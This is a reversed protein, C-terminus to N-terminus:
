VARKKGKSKEGQQKQASGCPKGDKKKKKKDANDAHEFYAELDKFQYVNKQFGWANMDTPIDKDNKLWLHLAPYDEVRSFNPAYNKFFSSKSIFVEILNESTPKKPLPWKGDGVVKALSKQAELYALYKAYSVRLSTTSRDLLHAPINLISIIHDRPLNSAPRSHSISTTALGVLSSSAHIAPVSTAEM